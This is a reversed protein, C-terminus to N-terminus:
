NLLQRIGFTRFVGRAANGIEQQTKYRLILTDGPQVTLREAPDSLARELDVRITVQPQGPLQRLVLLEGPSANGTLGGTNRGIANGARAVAQLVDLETDRPLLFEGGGLLGGTYYVETPKADVYVIDGDGLVSDARRTRDPGYFGPRSDASQRIPISSRGYSNSQGWRNQGTRPFESLPRFNATTRATNQRSAIGTSGGRQVRIAPQANVGPIGGTQVLANLVDNDGAALQLTEGRSSRDSRESVAQSSAGRNLRSSSSNDQRIVTVNYTRKRLLSVLVRSDQQLIPKDGGYYVRKILGELQSISLGKAYVKPVLPLSIAGDSQVVVPFGLAPPLDSGPEPFHIPPNSGAEGLVGEIFVGVTDGADLLYTAAKTQQLYSVDTPQQDNQRNSQPYANSYQQAPISEIRQRLIGQAFTSDASSFAVFATLICVQLFLPHNRIM